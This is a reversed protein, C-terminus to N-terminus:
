TQDLSEVVIATATHVDVARGLLFGQVSDCGLERIRNLQAETEVGEAVTAMGFTQALGVIAAVIRADSEEIDSFEVFSRDIKVTDAQFRQLYSLSSYGTGFDDIAIKVGLARIGDLAAITARLDTMLNGETVELVLRGPHLGSDRLASDIVEAIDTRALQRGSLNVAVYLSEAGSMENTWKALQHCSTRLVLEDIQTILSSEQAIALFGSPEIVEGDRNWRVLAEFGQLVKDIGHIPQYAVFLDGADLAAHLESEIVLGREVDLAMSSVFRETRSRGAAKARFMALDAQRLLDSANADGNQVAVGISAAVYVANGALDIPTKMVRHLRETVSTVLEDMPTESLEDHIVAVFEDGGLRALMDREGIASRFRSSVEVLLEDGFHHGLSDNVLKFRDLDIFLVAVRRVRKPETLSALHETLAARNPLGTLLDHTARHELVVEARKQESIDRATIVSCNEDDVSVVVSLTHTNGFVDALEVDGSWSGNSRAEPLVRVQLLRNIKRSYPWRQSLLAEEGFFRKAAGNAHVVEGNSGHLIMLDSTRELAEGLRHMSTAIAAERRLDRFSVVIGKIDPDDLQNIALAQIPKWGSGTEYNRVRFDVHQSQGPVDLIAVLQTLIRERDDPHILDIGSVGAHAEEDGNGFATRAAANLYSITLEAGIVLIADPVADLLAPAVADVNIGGVGLAISVERSSNAPV